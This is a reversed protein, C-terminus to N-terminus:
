AGPKKGRFMVGACVASGLALAASILMVWRFGAVSSEAIALRLAERTPVDATAPAEMGGAKIREADIAERVETSLHMGTLRQDLSHNFAFTMVLGFAAVALLAATSAVANNVGSAIGARSRDVANMVTTTLPAITIAMGLGLLAVPPFFTRWYSGGVGPLAFLAFGAAAIVPGIVLPLRSGVREILGGSWRSLFFMIFVFPLLSAGAATASYGHVQILNLPLFFMSGGLAAYLLLTLANAGTFERSKFLALPLMPNASRSEAFLFLLLLVVGALLASAVAPHAFGLSGSEILGYVIAGLAFTALAAGMIDLKGGHDDKSEPVHRFILL